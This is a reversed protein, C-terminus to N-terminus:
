AGIHFWVRNFVPVGDVAPQASGGVVYHNLLRINTIRFQSEDRVAQDGEDDSSDEAETDLDDESSEDDDEWMALVKARLVRIEEM